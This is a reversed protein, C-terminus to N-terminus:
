WSAEQGRCFCIAFLNKGAIECNAAGLYKRTCTGNIKRVDVPNLFNFLLTQNRALCPLINRETVAKEASVKSEALPIPTHFM